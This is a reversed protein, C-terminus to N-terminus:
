IAWNPQKRMAHSLAKSAELRKRVITKPTPNLQYGVDYSGLISIGWPALKRRLKHIFVRIIAEPNKPEDRDWYVEEIISSLRVVTGRMLSGMVRAEFLTLRWEPPMHSASALLLGKLWTIEAAQKDELPTM